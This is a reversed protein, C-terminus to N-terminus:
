NDTRFDEVEGCELTDDGDEDEYEVCLSFYHRTDKDLGDVDESFSDDGDFYKEVRVKQLDNGDEDIDSYSDYDSQIDEIQSKDEGYVFFVLGDEADNMDIEGNLEAEYRDINEADDTQVDPEQFNNSSSNTSSYNIYNNSSTYGPFYSSTGGNLFALFQAIQQYFLDYGNGYLQAYPAYTNTTNTYLSPYPDLAQANVRVAATFVIALMTIASLFAILQKPLTQFKM